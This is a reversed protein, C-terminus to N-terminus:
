WGWGAWPASAGSIPHSFSADGDSGEAVGFGLITLSPRADSTVGDADIARQVLTGVNSPGTSLNVASSGRLVRPLWRQAAKGFKGM